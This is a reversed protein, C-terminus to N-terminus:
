FTSTIARIYLKSGIEIEKHFVIRLYDKSKELHFDSEPNNFLDGYILEEDDITISLYGGLNDLKIATHYDQWIGLNTPLDLGELDDEIVYETHEFLRNQLLLENMGSTMKQELRFELNKIYEQLSSVKAAVLQNMDSRKQIDELRDNLYREITPYKEKLKLEGDLVRFQDENYSLTISATEKDPDIFQLCSRPDLSVSMRGDVECLGKSLDLTEKMQHVSYPTGYIKALTNITASKFWKFKHSSHKSYTYACDADEVLVGSFPYLRDRVWEGDIFEVVFNTHPASDVLYRDGPNPDPPLKSVVSKVSKLFHIGKM